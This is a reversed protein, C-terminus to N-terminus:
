NKIMELFVPWAIDPYFRHGDPGSVVKLNSISGKKEYVYCASDVTDKAESYPYIHDNIGSVVLVPRPACLALIDEYEFWNLIGPIIADPCAARRGITKRYSGVCGSAIVGNIREDIAAAYVSVNGGTSNGMLYIKKNHSPLINPKTLLWNIVTSVDSIREGLLTRGILLAHNAADVCPHASIKKINKEQRQGFCTQEICVAIFGNKIAQLAYDAGNSIKIPDSPMRAEGWSLHAGSNHGQLCIMIPLENLETNSESWLIDVPIYLHENVSLYVSCKAFQNDIKSIAANKVLPIIPSQPSAVLEELKNRALMQWEKVDNTKAGKWSLALTNKKYESFHFTSPSLKIDSPTVPYPDYKGKIILSLRRKFVLLIFLLKVKFIYHYLRKFYAM